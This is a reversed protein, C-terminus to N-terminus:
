GLAALAQGAATMGTQYAGHATSFSEESCAEGAFFLRNDVPTALLARDSHHGPIAYSYSGRAFEDKRWQSLHVPKIRSSFSSKLPSGWSTCAKLAKSPSSSM